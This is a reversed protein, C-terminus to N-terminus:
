RLSVMHLAQANDCIAIPSVIRRLVILQRYEAFGIGRIRIVNVPMNPGLFFFARYRKSGQLSTIRFWPYGSTRIVYDNRQDSTGTIHLIHIIKAAKPTILFAAMGPETHGSLSIQYETFLFERFLILIM